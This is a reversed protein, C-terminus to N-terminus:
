CKEKAKWVSSAEEEAEKEEEEAEKEEKEELALCLNSQL